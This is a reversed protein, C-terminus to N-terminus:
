LIKAKLNEFLSSFLRAPSMRRTDEGPDDQQVMGVIWFGDEYWDDTIPVPGQGEQRHHDRRNEGRDMRANSNTSAM